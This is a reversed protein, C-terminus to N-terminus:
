ERSDGHAQKEYWTVTRRLATDMDLAPEWCLVRRTRSIDIVLSGCLRNIEESFGLLSGGLRLARKPVPVLRIRKGMAMAIRRLLEPTSIDVGDSIMWVNGYSETKDVLHGVFDSLNWVSVLSRRNDVAGLPLPRGKDVWHLLRLFNARVGAGYVLPPRIITAHLGFRASVETLLQEAAWKSSGYADKPAPADDERFPRSGTCEGNVKVSSLYIFQRVGHQAAALALGHTGRANTEHYLDANGAADNLVHARAAVHVVVDVGELASDWRTDGRIDSVVAEETAGAPRDRGPRIAARVVYGRRALEACLVRGVFGTGGTVLLRTM